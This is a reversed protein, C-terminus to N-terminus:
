GNNPICDGGNSKISACTETAQQFSSTPLVVRYWVGKQGLEVRRIELATNGGLRSQLSRLSAQAEGESRQSSLQVYAGSGGSTATPAPASAAPTPAVDEIAATLDVARNAGGVMTTRDAPRPMPLPAVITPDINVPTATAPETSAINPISSSNAPMSM